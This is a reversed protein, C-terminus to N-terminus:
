DRLLDLRKVRLAAIEGARLGAYAAFRVLVGYPPTIAEALV